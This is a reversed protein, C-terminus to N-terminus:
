SLHIPANTAKPSKKAHLRSQSATERSILGRIATWFRGFATCFGGFGTRFGREAPCFGAKLVEPPSRGQNIRNLWRGLRVQSGLM